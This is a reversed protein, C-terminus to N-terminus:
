APPAVRSLAKDTLRWTEQGVLWSPEPEQQSPCFSKLSCVGCGPQCAGQNPLALDVYGGRRLQLLALEIQGASLNLLQRLEQTSRPRPRLAELLQELM